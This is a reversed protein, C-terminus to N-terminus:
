ALESACTNDDDPQLRGLAAARKIGSPTDNAWLTAKSNLAHLRECGFLIENFKVQV